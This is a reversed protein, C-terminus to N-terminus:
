QTNTANARISAAHRSTIPSLTSSLNSPLNGPPPTSLLPHCPPRPGGRLARSPAGLASRGELSPRPTQPHRARQDQAPVGLVGAAAAALGTALQGSVFATAPQSGRPRALHKRYAATFRRSAAALARLTDHHIPQWVKRQWLGNFNEIVAQFGTQLPPAFVPTVELSLCLASSKAWSTLITIGAKSVCTTILSRM